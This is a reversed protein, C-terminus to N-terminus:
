VLYGKRKGEEERKEGGVYAVQTVEDRGGERGGEGREGEGRELM